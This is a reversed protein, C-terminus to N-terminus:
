FRWELQAYLSREVHRRPAAVGFEAHHAHLLNQGTVSLELMPTAHWALRLDLESYAPVDRLAIQSVYRATADVTLHRPLDWSSRLLLHRDPDAAEGVGQTTDTSGPKPEIRLRMETYGARVRWNDTIQYQATLEVGYSSARFGNAIVVPRPAPPTIQEVSRVDDYWNYFTSVSFALRKRAQLRYGV